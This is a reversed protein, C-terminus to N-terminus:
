KLKNALERLKKEDYKVEGNTPVLNVLENPNYLYHTNLYGRNGSLLVVVPEVKIDLKRGLAESLKVNETIPNPLANKIKKFALEQRWSEDSEMGSISGEYSKVTIGYVNFPTLLVYDLKEVGKYLLYHKNFAELVSEFKRKGRQAKVKSSTVYLALIILIVALPFFTAFFVVFFLDERFHNVILAAILAVTAAILSFFIVFWTTQKDGTNKYKHEM